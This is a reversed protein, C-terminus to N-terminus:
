KIEFVLTVSSRLGLEGVAVPVADAAMTAMEMRAMKSPQPIAGNESISIIRGLEVGAADAYLEAKARADKVARRRAEDRHPRPTQVGFSISNIRNAGVKTLVDLIAGVRDIARVRVTVTNVAQYGIIRLQTNNNNRQAWRPNLSLQSTQIDRPKIGAAKLHEFVKGMTASNARMAGSANKKFSSVGLSVTAMDPTVFVSGTGILTLRRLTQQASLVGPTIAMILIVIIIRM